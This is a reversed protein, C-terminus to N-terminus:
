TIKDKEQNLYRETCSKPVDWRHRKCGDKASEDQRDVFMLFM